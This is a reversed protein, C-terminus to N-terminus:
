LFILFMNYSIVFINYIFNQLHISGKVFNGKLLIVKVKVNKQKRLILLEETKKKQIRIIRAIALWAM